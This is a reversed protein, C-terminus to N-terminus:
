RAQPKLAFEFQIDRSVGQPVACWHMTIKEMLNRRLPRVPQRMQLRLDDCHLLLQIRSGAELAEWCGMTAVAASMAPVPRSPLVRMAGAAHGVAAALAQLPRGEDLAPCCWPLLPGTAAAAAAVCAHSAYALPRLLAAAAAAGLYCVQRAAGIPPLLPQGPSSRSQTTHMPITLNRM